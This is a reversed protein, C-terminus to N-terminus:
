FKSLNYSFQAVNLLDLLNKQSASVYHFLYELLANIKEIQGYTQLHNAMSFKLETNLLGFLAM